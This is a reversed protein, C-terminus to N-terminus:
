MVKATVSRSVLRIVANTTSASRGPKLTPLSSCLSPIRAEGVPWGIKSSTRTGCAFTIPSTPRPRRDRQARELARAQAGGRLGDPDGLARGVVGDGVRALAPLEALRDVLELAIWNLSASM